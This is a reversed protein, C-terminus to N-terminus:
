SLRSKAFGYLMWGVAGIFVLIVFGLPNRAAFRFIEDSHRAFDDVASAAFADSQTTVAFIASCFVIGIFTAIKQM